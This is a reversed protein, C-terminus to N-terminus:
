TSLSAAAHSMASMTAVAMVRLCPLTDLDDVASQSAPHPAHKAIVM